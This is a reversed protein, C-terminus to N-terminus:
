NLNDAHNGSGIIWLSSVGYFMISSKDLLTEWLLILNQNQENMEDILLLM